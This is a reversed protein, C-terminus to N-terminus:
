ALTIPPKAAHAVPVPTYVKQQGFQIATKSSRDLHSFVRLMRNSEVARASGVWNLKPDGDQPLTWFQAMMPAHSFMGDTEPEAALAARTGKQVHYNGRGQNEEGTGPGPSFLSGDHFGPDALDEVPVGERELALGSANADPAEICRFPVVAASRRCRRGQAAQDRAFPQVAGDQVYVSVPAQNRPAQQGVAPVDRRLHDSRTGSGLEAAIGATVVVSASAWGAFGSLSGDPPLM